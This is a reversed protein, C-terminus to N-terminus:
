RLALGWRRRWYAVWGVATLGVLGLTGPEPVSYVVDIEKNTGDYHLSFKGAPDTPNVFTSADFLVTSSLAADTTPGTYNGQWSVFKWNFNKLPDFNAMAGQTDQGVTIPNILTQLSMNFQTGAVSTATWNLDGSSLQGTFPDVLKEVSLLSWGSVQNNADPTPGAQGTANNIQWNFSSTGGPGLILSEARSIGPSNGAQFKGGNQTIVGSQFTGAGKVLAGYDAIITAGGGTSDGVFGNNVFLGGAVVANQGHLDVLARNQGATQPTGIFTRSGGNFYLPTSGNNTLRTQQGSGAAAPTLNLLGYTQFDAVTVQSAAGLTISGSGQNTLGTMASTPGAAVSLGGGNTVNVFSAPGTQNLTANPLTTAGSIATGGTLAFTGPGRVFGGNVAAGNLAVTAGAASALTGFNLNFTRAASTNATYLLTGAANVSIAPNPGLTADNATQISGGNIVLNSFSNGTNTLTLAGAGIKVLAGPGIISGGFVTSTNDSGVTLTANTLPGTLYVQGGPGALSGISQDFGNLGVFGGSATGNVTVRAQSSFVNATLTQVGAVSGNITTNGWNAGNLLIQGANVQLATSLSSPGNLILNGPGIKSLTFAGGFTGNITLSGAAQNVGVTADGTLTAGTQTTTGITLVSTAAATNVVAGAGAVGTGQLHLTDITENRGNTDFTGGTVSVGGGDFIQDGGAGALQLTGGTVIVGFIPGNGGIAHVDPSHSSAKALVFTGASVIAGLGVNDSPGSLTLTGGGFKTLVNNLTTNSIAGSLNIDGPGGVSFSLVGGSGAINNNVLGAFGAPTASSNILAGNGGAGSGFIVVGPGAGAVAQGNLDLTGLGVTTGFGVSWGNPSSGLANPHGLVLTGGNVSVQGQFGSNDATLMLTGTGDKVLGGTGSLVGSITNKDNGNSVVRTTSNILISRPVTIGGNLFELGGNTFDGVMLLLSNAPNGLSADSNIGLVGHTLSVTGTFTNANTLNFGGTNNQFGDEFNVSTTKGSASSIVGALTVRSGDSVGTWFATGSGFGTGPSATSEVSLRIPPSVAGNVNNGLDVSFIALPDTNSVDSNFNIQSASNVAATTKITLGGRNINIPGTLGPNPAGLTLMENSACTVTLGTSSVLASNIAFNFGYQHIILEGSNPATLTGGTITDNATNPTVLIGGSQLTNTGSLTMTLNNASFRLSNVAFTTPAASTTVDVNATANTYSNTAYTSLGVINGSAVTAWSTGSAVTAYAPGSGLLGDTTGTTTAITFTTTGASPTFDATAGASRGIVGGTNFTVTGTGFASIDAHGAAIMTGAQMTQSVATTHNPVFTLSGGDLTLAGNAMKSATNSSYDLELAGGKVTLGGGLSAGSAAFDLAGPGFKTLGGSVSNGGSAFSGGLFVFGLGGMVVGGTGPTGIVVNTNFSFGFSNTADNTVTLNSGAPFLLSGTSIEAVGAGNGSTIATVGSLVQNANATLNYTTGPPNSFTLSQAQVSSSINITGLGNVLGNGTFNVTATASNPVTAPSWNSATNWDTGPGVWTQGTASPVVLAIVLLGASVRIGCAM